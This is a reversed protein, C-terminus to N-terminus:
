LCFCAIPVYRRKLRPSQSVRQHPEEQTQQLDAVVQEQPLQQSKLLFPKCLEELEHLVNGTTALDPLFTSGDEGGGVFEENVFFHDIPYSGFPDLATSTTTPSCGRVVAHLDWNNADQISSSSWWIAM